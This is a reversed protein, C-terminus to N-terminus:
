INDEEIELLTKLRNYHKANNSSKSLSIFFEFGATPFSGIEYFHHFGLERLDQILLSFSKSTSIWKHSDFYENEKLIDNVQAMSLSISSQQMAIQETNNSDWALANGRTVGYIMSDLLTGASHVSKPNLHVDVAAGVSSLPKFRDFCFRKDPVVLSLVGDPKLLRECDLLFAILDTTHEILHSAIIYDFIHEEGILETFTGGSWIYDVEEIANVMNKPLQSYKKILGERNMHDVTKINAGSSKPVMPNYSPGIELGKGKLNIYTLAKDVRSMMSDATNNKIGPNQLKNCTRTLRENEALLKLTKKRSFLYVALFALSCADFTFLIDYKGSLASFVNITLLIVASVVFVIKEKLKKLIKNIM